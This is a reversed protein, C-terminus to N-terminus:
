ISMLDKEMSSVALVCHIHRINAQMKNGECIYLSENALKLNIKSRPQQHLLSIQRDLCRAAQVNNNIYILM